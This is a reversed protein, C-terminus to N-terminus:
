QLELFTLNFRQLYVKLRNTDNSSTKRQRSVNFLTRGAEAITRSTRCVQIVQALQAQEFLDIEEIAETSLLKKLTAHAPTLAADEKSLGRWDTQLRKIESTVIEETIRGGHALIAMRTVSANLDRFNAHWIADPAMGFDLYQKLALQNFSAKYGILQTIKKLEYHINPELDEIREKLSPLEYTWLNIRALLDERFSGCRVQEHL